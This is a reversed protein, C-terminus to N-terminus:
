NNLYDIKHIEQITRIIQWKTKDKSYGFLTKILKNDM